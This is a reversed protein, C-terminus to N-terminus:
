PPCAAFGQATAFAQIQAIMANLAAQGAVYPPDNPGDGLAAYATSAATVGAQFDADASAKLSALATAADDAAACGITHGEVNAEAATWATNLSGKWETNWHYNEHDITSQTVHWNPGKMGMATYDKLDAIMACYNGATVNGGAVPNPTNAAPTPVITITGTSTVSDVRIRWVGAEKTSARAPPM